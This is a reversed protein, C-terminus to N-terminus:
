IKKFSKWIRKGVKTQNAKYKYTMTKIGKQELTKETWIEFHYGRNECFKKAYKWKSINKVYTIAETLKKKKPPKTQAEPKIEVLVTRGDNYRITLDVFYRHAKMDTQCIYGIVTEESNWWKVSSNNELYRFTNREWLSRYFVNQYDGKYKGPKKIKYKGSYTKM